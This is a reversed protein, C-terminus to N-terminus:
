FINIMRGTLITAIVYEYFLENNLFIDEETIKDNIIEIMLKNLKHTEDNNKKKKTNIIPM